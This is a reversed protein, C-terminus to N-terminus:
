RASLRAHIQRSPRASCEAVLVVVLIGSTDMGGAQRRMGMRLMALLALHMVTGRSAVDTLSSQPVVLPKWDVDMRRELTAESPCWEAFTAHADNRASPRAYGYTKGRELLM